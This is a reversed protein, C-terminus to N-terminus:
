IHYAQLILDLFIQNSIRESKNTLREAAHNAIMKISGCSIPLLALSNNIEKVDRNRRPITVNSSAFFRRSLAFFRHFVKCCNDVIYSKHIRQKKNNKENHINNEQFIPVFRRITLAMM